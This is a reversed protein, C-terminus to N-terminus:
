LGYKSCDFPLASRQMQFLKDLGEAALALMKDMSGKGFPTREATGQIEVFRGDDTMVINMDVDAISDEDYKLDLIPEGNLLGVSVAAIFHQVPFRSIIRKDTLVHFAQAMAVFAGTISATRTGGDAQVVDCDIWVTMDPFASQDVVARMSRGILRQIEQTRGTQKGRSAERASRQMTASPLMGYEATIWGLGTGKQFPPVGNNVCASCLVRTNGVEVLCSGESYMQVGAKLTVPRLSYNDRNDTRM